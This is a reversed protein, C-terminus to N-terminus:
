GAGGAALDCGLLVTVLQPLRGHGVREQVYCRLRLPKPGRYLALGTPLEKVRHAVESLRVLEALAVEYEVGPRCRRRYQEVAHPTVFWRGPIM